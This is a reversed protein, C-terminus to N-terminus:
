WSVINYKLISEIMSPYLMTKTQQSINFSRLKRLLGLRQQAKKHIYEVNSKFNLKEDIITDLYKFNSVQEVTKEKIVVPKYESANDVRRSQKRLCLEKQRKL